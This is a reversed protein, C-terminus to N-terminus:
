NISQDIAKLRRAPNRCDQGAQDGTIEDFQVQSAESDDIEGASDSDSEESVATWTAQYTDHPPHPHPPSFGHSGSRLYHLPEPAHLSISTFRSVFSVTLEEDITM